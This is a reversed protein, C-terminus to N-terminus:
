WTRQRDFFTRFAEREVALRRIPDQEPSSPPQDFSLGIGNLIMGLAVLVLPIAVVLLPHM